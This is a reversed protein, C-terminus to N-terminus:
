NNRHHHHHYLLNLKHLHLSLIKYLHHINMSLLHHTPAASVDVDDEEVEAQPQVLMSAFLPTEVRSFGKGVILFKSPSDVNRVMSDFIYKSFNFKRGTALCIIASAMSCSFANWATRKTDAFIDENPLCEVGDADDLRLDQRIVDETIVVKKKDILAQLKVVDNAKKILAQACCSAAAVYESKTLSTAVVTQKKCQWSILRYGLFQCGGTTSKRDLNARAYDSDSYEVLNFPSDKPYWLGLHPKAKLYRYKHVDVDEGDPDKLLPKEIEIPTSASKVDKFGFKRLIEAVYKDQSIFIGDDKQKVKQKKIFLTQDIKERQFGNELLYNALTEYWARPAQHLGYLAKVVKYVKDPYDPDKFGLPQCVYVEEKITGYLFASKVDMQYVMFGMFAVYALFLQIAKIRAVPAFVEDFDIGEEQTHGQAVLRAKNRIVIGREDKKNRFVWKSGIARKGKPLDQEKVMRAMSKTQPASTLDSIIQTIPHDKHVRTTPIPSVSIHRELTFFNAEVGVDEEDNSYVIDKLAPMDPDDPYNSPDVFSSKGAIGFNPSVVTDSPSATNFGNTSNTLNSGAVIVLASAANVRNTSNVADLNEKIGANHNPQNGAVVPQYNMSQTLTDIDFLWKSGSEKGSIKGGKPNRGFAVYGENFAEFDLLYSINGTMHRSCGSDIVGKDELAQQPNGQVDFLFSIIKQPGLGHSVQIKVTTVKQNFNSNKTAPKHNVLRKIPSHAKHVVHKVSRTLVTAPVVNRNSYSHSMRASNYHSMRMANNWVPKQVMQKEYYDCDKILYNLTKCVFCAKRNWSNKHCRSKQNDIKLNAAQKPHEILEFEDESNSTWDEIISADPRLPKSMDKSLKHSSSVVNVVNSVIESAKPADNFVLNPKSPMFTGTYPPPVVHYGKGSKYRDHVPSIPVSDDSESDLGTKYSLVDIQSKRFDITLKDYHSQLTAYAKSCAKSCPAVENDSELSSSSDSSAYAMLAYNTPEEDAQFSRDYSGVADCQSVLANLTSVEMPVVRRPTDKNKNDKPSRCDRRARMTLMAMQWKLDIEELYDADIQKLDENELQHSKSQSVFFSYIVADSLSDVNPLTSVPAQFSAVSVSPVDNVSENTSDTNNSSVFAINQTNHSFTSSGKVEAKYLKLNNFLDDLSQEELDAKNRQEATTPANVQVVGDVIRTPTPSDGNLIVEWLSYNTMLIYQEIRMKWLDFENPNLIPLKAAAVVM